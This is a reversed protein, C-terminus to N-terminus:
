IGVYNVLNYRKEFKDNMADIDFQDMFDNLNELNIKMTDKTTYNISIYFAGEDYFINKNKYKVPYDFLELLNEKTFEIYEGELYCDIYDKTDILIQYDKNFYHDIPKTNCVTKENKDILSINNMFFNLFSELNDFKIALTQNDVLM